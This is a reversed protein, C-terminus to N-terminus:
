SAARHGVNSATSSSREFSRQLRCTQPSYVGPTHVLGDAWADVMDAWTQLMHRLEGGHETRDLLGSKREVVDKAFALEIWIENFGANRLNKSATRLLDFLSFRALPLQSARAQEFVMMTTRNLGIPAMPVFPDLVSPLVFESEGARTKLEVLIDFAQQSLYVYRPKTSKARGPPITWLGQEFDIESWRARVLESRRTLTLLILKVALACERRIPIQELLRALIGTESPSLWRERPQFVGLSRATIQAVPDDGGFGKSRAHRFVNGIIERAHIATASGRNTKVQDLLARVDSVGIDALCRTALCPAIDREYVRRRQMRTADSLMAEAFWADAAAAFHKEIM